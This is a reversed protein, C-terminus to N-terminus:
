EILPRFSPLETSMIHGLQEQFSLAVTITTTGKKKPTKLSLLTSISHSSSKM